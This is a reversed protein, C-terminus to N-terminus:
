APVPEGLSSRLRELDSLLSGALALIAGGAVVIVYEIALDLVL